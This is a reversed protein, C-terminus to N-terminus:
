LEEPRINAYGIMRIHIFVANYTVSLVGVDPVLIGYLTFEAAIVANIEQFM